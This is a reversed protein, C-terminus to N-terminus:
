PHKDLRRAHAAHPTRFMVVLRESEPKGSWYNQVLLGCNEIDDQWLSHEPGYGVFKILYEVKNKRGRKVLRHDLISEVEWEPEDDIIDAPPPPPIRGDRHYRKLLSVHFVDHIKMTPPLDLRYSM